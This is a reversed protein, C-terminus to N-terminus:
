FHSRADRTELEFLQGPNVHAAPKIAYHYRNFCHPDDKCHKGSKAVIVPAPLRVDSTDALALGLTGVLVVAVATIALTFTAKM